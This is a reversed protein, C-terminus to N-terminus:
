KGHAANTHQMSKDTFQMLEIDNGEPDRVFACRSGCMGLPYEEYPEKMRPYEDMPGRHVPVGKAEVERIKAPLNDVEFCFHHHSRHHVDNDGQYSEPFLEVYQAKAVRIYTLWLSGDDNDLHFLEECGLVNVYFDRMAKYDKCRLAVHGLHTYHIAM